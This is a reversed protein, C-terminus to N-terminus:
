TIKFQFYKVSVFASNKVLDDKVTKDFTKFTEFDRIPLQIDLKKKEEEIKGITTEIGNKLLSTSLLEMRKKLDYLISNKANKIEKRIMIIMRDEMDKLCDKFYSQTM